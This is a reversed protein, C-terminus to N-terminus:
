ATRTVQVTMANVTSPTWPAGTHPDQDICDWYLTYAETMPRDTGDQTDGSSEATLQVNAIGADTKKTKHLMIVGVVQTISADVDPFSLGMKQGPDTAEDYTADGDPDEEDIMAFRSGGSSPTWDVDATDADPFQTYVKVDGIFTDNTGGQDDSCVMDDVYWLADQHINQDHGIVVQSTELNATAKTDIGTLSVVTVGNLRCEVAGAADDITVETEVHNWGNATLLATSTALLTGGSDGRFVRIAGTSALYISIQPANGADNFKSLFVADSAQPLADFFYAAGFRVTTKALGFVRRINDPGQMGFEMSHTGTRARTTSIAANIAAWAGDTMNTETVGYYDTSEAWLIM